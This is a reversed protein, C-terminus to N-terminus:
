RVALFIIVVIVVLVFLALPALRAKGRTRIDLLSDLHPNTPADILESLFYDPPKQKAALPPPVSRVASPRHAVSEALRVEFVNTGVVVHDGAELRTASHIQEGNIFTGNLSQLDEIWLGDDRNSIAAHQRSVLDDELNIDSQESRGISLNKSLPVKLGAHPGEILELILDHDGSM